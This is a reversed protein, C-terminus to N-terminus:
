EDENLPVDEIAVYSEKNPYVWGIYNNSRCGESKESAEFLCVVM